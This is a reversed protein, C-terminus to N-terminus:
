NLIKQVAIKIESDFRSIACAGVNTILSTELPILPVLSYMSNNTTPGGECGQLGGSVNSRLFHIISSLLPKKPEPDPFPIAEPANRKLSSGKQALMGTPVSM